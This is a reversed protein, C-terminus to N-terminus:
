RRSTVRAIGRSIPPLPCPVLGSCSNAAPYAAQKALAMPATARPVPWSTRSTETVASTPMPPSTSFPNPSVTTRRISSGSPSSFPCSRTSRAWLTQGYELAVRSLTGTSSTISYGPRLRPGTLRLRPGSLRLRPGGRVARDGQPGGDARAGDPGDAGRHAAQAPAPGGEAPRHGARRRGRARGGGRRLQQRPRRAAGAAGVVGRGVAGERDAPGQGRGGQPPVPRPGAPG